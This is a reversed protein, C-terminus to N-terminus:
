KTSKFEPLAMLQEKSAGNLVMKNDSFTIDQYRVIVLREGVGLFGGVSLVAYPASGDGNIIIDDIKGINENKENVITSGIVKSAKYGKAVSVPEVRFVGVTQQTGQAMVPLYMSSSGLIFASLLVTSRKM